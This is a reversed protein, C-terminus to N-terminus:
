ARRVADEDFNADTAAATRADVRLIHIGVEDEIPDAIGGAKLTKVAKAYKPFRTELDPFTVTGLVGKTENVDQAESNALALKVFDAGGRIRTTLDKARTRVSDQTQGAFNLFIESLTITEPK